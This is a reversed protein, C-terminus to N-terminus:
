QHHQYTSLGFIEVMIVLVLSGAIILKKKM